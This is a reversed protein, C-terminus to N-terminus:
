TPPFASLFRIRKNALVFHNELDANACVDDDLM